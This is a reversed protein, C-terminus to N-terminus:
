RKFQLGIVLQKPEFTVKAATVAPPLMSDLNVVIEPLLLMSPPLEVDRIRAGGYEFVLEPRRWVLQYEATVGVPVASWLRVNLDAYLRDGQLRFRAGDLKVQSPLSVNGSLSRKMLDNLELESLVLTFRRNRIMETVQATTNLERYQMDLTEQPKVYYAAGAALLGGVVVIALMFM